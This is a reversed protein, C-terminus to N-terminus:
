EKITDAGVRHIEDIDLIDCEKGKKATTNIIQVKTNLSLGRDDLISVWQKLLTDTPVVVLVTLTPYKALVREICYIAVRTKGYGTCAVITGKGKSSLWKQVSEAQREDRTVPAFM